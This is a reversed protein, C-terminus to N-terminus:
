DVLFRESLRRAAICVGIVKEEAICIIYLVELILTMIHEDHTENQKIKLFCGM